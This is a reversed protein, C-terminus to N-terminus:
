APGAGQRRCEPMTQFLSELPAGGNLPTQNSLDLDQGANLTLVGWGIRRHVNFSSSHIIMRNM